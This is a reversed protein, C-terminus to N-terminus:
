ENTFIKTLKAKKLFLKYDLKIGHKFNGAIINQNNESWFCGGRILCDNAIIPKMLDTYNSYKLISVYEKLTGAIFSDNQKLTDM